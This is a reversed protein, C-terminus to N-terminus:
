ENDSVAKDLAAVREQILQLMVSLKDVAKEDNNAEGVAYSVAVDCIAHLDSLDVSVDSMTIKSMTFDEKINRDAVCAAGSQYEPCHGRDTCVDCTTM